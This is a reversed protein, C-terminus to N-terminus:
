HEVLCMKTENGVALDKAVRAARKAPRAGEGRHAIKSLSVRGIQARRGSICAYFKGACKGHMAHEASHRDRVTADLTGDLWVYAVFIFKGFSGFPASVEVRM